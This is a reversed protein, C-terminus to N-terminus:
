MEDEGSAKSWRHCCNATIGLLFNMAVSAISVAFGVFAIFLYDDLSLSFRCVKFSEEPLTFLPVDKVQPPGSCIVDRSDSGCQHLHRIIWKFLPEMTCGCVWPNGALRLSVTAPLNDLLRQSIATLGSYSLDLYELHSLSTLGIVALGPNHSLSLSALDRSYELLERGVRSLNNHSLDLHLLRTLPRFLGDPLEALSNNHLDLALLQALCSFYGRPLTRVQNHAMSLNSIDLPLGTPASVLERRSCDM